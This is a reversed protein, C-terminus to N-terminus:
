GAPSPPPDLWESGDTYFEKKWIPVVQKLREIAYGVAGLAAHRHAAGAAIVVSAEGVALRGVRHVIAIRVEGFGRQAEEAIRRMEKEAMAPYAQYEVAVVRRGRNQDRVTGCFIAIGGVGPGAVAAEVEAPDIPTQVIRYV